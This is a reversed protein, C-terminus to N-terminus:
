EIHDNKEEINLCWDILRSPHWTKMILEEEYNKSREHTRKQQYAEIVDIVDDMTYKNNKINKIIRNYIINIIYGDDLYDYDDTVDDLYNPQNMYEIYYSLNHLLDYESWTTFYSYTKVTSSISYGFIDKFIISINSIIKLNATPYLYNYINNKLKDLHINYAFNVNYVLLDVIDYEDYRRRYSSFICYRIHVIIYHIFHHITFEQNEQKINEYISIPYQPSYIENNEFLDKHAYYLEDILINCKEKYLIRSVCWEIKKSLLIKYNIINIINNHQEFRKTTVM